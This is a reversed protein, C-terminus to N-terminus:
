PEGPDPGASAPGSAAPSTPWLASRSGSRKLPSARPTSGSTSADAGARAAVDLLEDAVAGADPGAVLEDAGWHSQAGAAAYGRYVDVQRGMEDAPASGVWVRRILIAPGAGGASRYADVLARIRGPASLSDFVIGMRHGAARRVATASMAASVLPVPHERCRAIAPDAALRGPDTGGLAGAM